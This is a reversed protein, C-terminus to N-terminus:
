DKLHKEYVSCTINYISDCNSLNDLTSKVNDASSHYNRAAVSYYGRLWRALLPLLNSVYALPLPVVSIASIKYM